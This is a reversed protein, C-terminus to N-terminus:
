CVHLHCVIRCEEGQAQRSLAGVFTSPSVDSSLAPRGEEAADAPAGGAPALAAEVTAPDPEAEQRLEGQGTKLGSSPASAGPQQDALGAAPPLEASDSAVSDAFSDSALVPHSALVGQEAASLESSLAQTACPLILTLILSLSLCM